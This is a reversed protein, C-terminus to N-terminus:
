ANPEVNPVPPKPYGPLEAVHDLNREVLWQQKLAEMASIAQSLFDYFTYLGTHYDFVQYDGDEPDTSLNAPEWKEGGEVQIVRLITFQQVIEPLALAEQRNSLLLAEADAFANPNLAPDFFTPKNTFYNYVAYIM